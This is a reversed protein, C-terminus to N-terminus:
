LYPPLTAATTDGQSKPLAERIRSSTSTFYTIHTLHIDIFLM